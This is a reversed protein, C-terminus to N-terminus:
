HEEEEPHYINALTGEGSGVYAGAYRSPTSGKYEANLYVDQITKEEGDELEYVFTSRKLGKGPPGFVPHEEDAEYAWTINGLGDDVGYHAELTVNKTNGNKYLIKATIEFDEYSREKDFYFDAILTPHDDINGIWGDITWRKVQFYYYNGHNDTAKFIVNDYFHSSFTLTYEGDEENITVADEPVDLAEIDNIVFNNINLAKIKVTPELLISNITTPNNKSTGSIDFQDVSTYVNAWAAPYYDLTSLNSMTIGRYDDNYIIVKFNRDGYSVYANNETPEGLPQLEYSGLLGLGNVYNDVCNHFADWEDGPANDEPRECIGQDEVEHEYIQMDIHSGLIDKADLENWNINGEINNKAKYAEVWEDFRDELYWGKYQANVDFAKSNDNDATVESARYFTSNGDDFAPINNYKHYCTGQGCSWIVVARGDFGPGDPGPEIGPNGPEEYDQVAIDEDASYEFNMNAPNGQMYLTFKNASNYNLWGHEGNSVTIACAKDNACEVTGIAQNDSNRLEVFQGDIKLHGGEDVELTHDGNTTFAVVYEGDAFVNAIPVFYISIMAIVLTLAMTKKIKNKLKKKKM